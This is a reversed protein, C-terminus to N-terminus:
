PDPGGRSWTIHAGGGLEERTVDARRATSTMWCRDHLRSKMAWGPPKAEVIPELAGEARRPASLHDSLAVSGGFLSFRIRTATRAASAQHPRRRPYALPEAGHQGGHSLLPDRPPAEGPSGRGSSPRRGARGRALMSRTSRATGGTTRGSTRAALPPGP